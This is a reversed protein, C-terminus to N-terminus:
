VVSRRNPVARLLRHLRWRRALRDFDHRYLIEVSVGQQRARLVKRRKRNTLGQRM